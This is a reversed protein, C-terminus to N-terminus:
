SLCLVLVTMSQPISTRGYFILINVSIGGAGRCTPWINRLRVQTLPSCPWGCVLVALIVQVPVLGTSIHPFPCVSGFFLLAERRCVSDRGATNGVGFLSYKQNEQQCKGSFFICLYHPLLAPYAPYTNEWWTLFYLRALVASLILIKFHISHIQKVNTLVNVVFKVIRLTCVHPQYKKHKARVIRDVQKWETISRMIKPQYTFVLM